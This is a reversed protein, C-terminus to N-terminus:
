LTAKANPEGKSLVVKVDLIGNYYKNTPTKRSFLTLVRERFEPIRYSYIFANVFSNSYQLLKIGFMVQFNRTSYEVCDKCINLILFLVQMPLWTLVCAATATLLTWALKRDNVTRRNNPHVNARAWLATYCVCMVGLAALLSSCTVAVVADRSIVGLLGHLQTLAVGVALAWPISAAIVYVRKSATRHAVPCLVASLREISVVALTFFSASGFLIDLFTCASLIIRNYSGVGLRIYLPMVVAGTWLDAVALSILLYRPRRCDHIQLFAVLIIM